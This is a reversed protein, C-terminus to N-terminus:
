HVITDVTCINLAAQCQKEETKNEPQKYVYALEKGIKFNKDAVGVCARCSICKGTVRYTKKLLAM